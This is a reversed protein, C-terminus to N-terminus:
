FVKDVVKIIFAVVEDKTMGSTDCYIADEARVLAGFPRSADQGDRQIIQKKISNEDVNKGM